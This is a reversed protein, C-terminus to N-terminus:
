LSMTTEMTANWRSTVTREIMHFSLPRAVLDKRFSSVYAISRTSTRTLIKTCLVHHFVYQQTPFSSSRDSYSKECQCPFHWPPLKINALRYSRTPAECDLPLLETRFLLRTFRQLRTLLLSLNTPPRISRCLPGQNKVKM